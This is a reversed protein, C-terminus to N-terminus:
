SYRRSYASIAWRRIGSGTVWQLREERPHFHAENVEETLIEGSRVFWALLKSDLNANAVLCDPEEDSLM